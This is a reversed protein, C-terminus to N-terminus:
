DSLMQRLTAEAEKEDFRKLLAEVTTRQRTMDDVTTMRSLAFVIYQNM